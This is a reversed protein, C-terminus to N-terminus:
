SRGLPDDPLPHDVFFDWLRPAAEFGAPNNSGNPYRHRLGALMAFRFVAGGPGAGAAPWRLQTSHARRRTALDSRDLGLTDLHDEVFSAIVPEALFARPDLSLEALPPPGTQALLRDDRTGVAALMPIPRAPTRATSLGGAVFGAAALRQSREVALRATFSAGNSFGSAYFRRDDVPLRARLDATMADVFGVDDAPWPGTEPYGDPREDLNVESALEDHHWKTSLRGNDLVRYRLGTPFVAV